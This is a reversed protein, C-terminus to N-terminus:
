FRAGATAPANSPIRVITVIKPIQQGTDNVETKESDEFVFLWTFYEGIAPLSIKWVVCNEYIPSDKATALRIGLFPKLAYEEARASIGILWKAFDLTLTRRTQYLDQSSKDSKIPTQCLFREIATEIEQTSVTRTKSEKGLSWVVHLLDKAVPRLEDETFGQGQATSVTALFCGCLLTVLRM